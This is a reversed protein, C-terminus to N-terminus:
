PAVEATKPLANPLRFYGQRIQKKLSDFFSRVRDRNEPDDLLVYNWKRNEEVAMGIREDATKFFLMVMGVRAVDALVDQGGLTITQRYLGCERTLRLEDEVFAWLRALAKSPALTGASLKSQLDDLEHLRERRQFPMGSNVVEKLRDVAHFVVPALREDMEDTSALGERQSKMTQELQKIRLKERQIQSELDAKQRAISRLRDSTQSKNEDLKISLAEVEDRLAILKQAMDAFEDAFVFSPVILFCLFILLTSTGRKRM